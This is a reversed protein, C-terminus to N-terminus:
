LRLIPKKKPLERCYGRHHSELVEDFHKYDGSIKMIAMIGAGLMAAKVAKGWKQSPVYFTFGGVAGGIVWPSACTEIDKFPLAAQAVTVGVAFTFGAIGSIGVHRVIRVGCRWPGIHNAPQLSSLSVGSMLGIPMLRGGWKIGKEIAGEGPKEDFDRFSKWRLKWWKPGYLEENEEEVADSDWEGFLADSNNGSLWCIPCGWGFLRCKEKKLPYTNTDVHETDPYFRNMLISPLKEKIWEHHEDGPM